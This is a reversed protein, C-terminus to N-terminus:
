DERWLHAVVEDLVRPIISTDNATKSVLLLGQLCSLLGWATADTDIGERLDGAAQADALADRLYAAWDEFVRLLRARLPEELTSAEAALSGFPCGRVHGTRRKIETHSAFAFEFLAGIRESPPQEAAFIPDLVDRKFTEWTRELVALMLAQKSPFFHYFSGKKVGARNCIAQVGVSRYSHAHVLDAAAVLLRERPERDTDASEIVM